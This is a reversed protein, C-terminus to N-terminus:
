RKYYMQDVESKTCKKWKETNKPSKKENYFTLNYATAKVLSKCEPDDYM